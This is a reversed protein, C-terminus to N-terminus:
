AVRVVLCAFFGPMAGPKKADASWGYERYPGRFPTKHGDASAEVVDGGDASAKCQCEEQTQPPKASDEQTQPPKASDPHFQEEM